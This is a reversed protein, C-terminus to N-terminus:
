SSFSFFLQVFLESYGSRKYKRGCMHSTPILSSLLPSLILPSSFLSSSFFPTSLLSSLLPSSLLPSSLLASCLLAPSSVMLIHSDPPHFVLPYFFLPSFSLLLCFVLSISLLSSLLPHPLPFSFSLLLLSFLLPDCSFLSWVAELSSNLRLHPLSIWTSPALTLGPPGRYLGRTRCTLVTAGLSHYLGRDCVLRIGGSNM